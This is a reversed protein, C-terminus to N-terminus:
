FCSSNRGLHDAVILLRAQNRSSIALRGAVAIIGVGVDELQTERGEADALILVAAAPAPTGSPCLSTASALNM